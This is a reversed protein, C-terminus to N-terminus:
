LDFAKSLSLVFTNNAENGAISEEDENFTGSYTLSVDLGAVEGVSGSIEFYSYDAVQEFEFDSSVKGVLININSITYDLNLMTFDIGDGLGPLPLDNTVGDTYSVGLGLITAGVTLEKRGIIDPIDGGFDASFDTYSISVAQGAITTSFAISLDTQFFGDENGNADVMEAGVTFGAISYEINASATITDDLEIARVIHSSDVSVSASLEAQAASTIALSAVTIAKFLNKM